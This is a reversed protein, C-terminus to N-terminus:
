TYPLYPPGKVVVNPGKLVIPRGTSDVFSQNRIQISRPLSAEVAHPLSSVLVVASVLVLATPLRLGGQIDATHLRVSGQIDATGRRGVEPTGDRMEALQASVHTGRLLIHRFRSAAALLLWVLLYGQLQLKPWGAQLADTAGSAGTTDGM